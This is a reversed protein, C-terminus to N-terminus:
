ATYREKRISTTHVPQKACQAGKQFESRAEPFGPFQSRVASRWFVITQGSYSAPIKSEKLFCVARMDRFVAYVVSDLILSLLLNFDREWVVSCIIALIAALCALVELLGIRQDDILSVGSNRSFEQM